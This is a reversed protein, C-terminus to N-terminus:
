SSAPLNVQALRYLYTASACISVIELLLVSSYVTAIAKAMLILILASASAGKRLDIKHKVIQLSLHQRWVAIATAVVVFLGVCIKANNTELDAIWLTAVLMAAALSAFVWSSRVSAKQMTNLLRRDDRQWLATILIVNIVGIAAQAFRTVLLHTSVLSTDQFMGYLFPDISWAAFCYCALVAETSGEGRLYAVLSAAAMQVKSLAGHITGWAGLM